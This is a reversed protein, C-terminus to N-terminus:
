LPEKLPKITTNLTLLQRANKRSRFSGLLLSLPPAPEGGRDIQLAVVSAGPSCALPAPESQPM